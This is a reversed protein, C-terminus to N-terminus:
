QDPLVFRPLVQATTSDVCKAISHAFTRRRMQRQVGKLHLV